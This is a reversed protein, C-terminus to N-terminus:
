SVPFSLGPFSTLCICCRRRPRGSGRGAYSPIPFVIVLDGLNLILTNKLANWFDRSTFAEKFHTLGIWPSDWIGKFVNFKKFAVVVGLMPKYRFLIMYVVPVILMLYLQWNNKLYLAVSGPKKPKKNM